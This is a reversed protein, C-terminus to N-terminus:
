QEVIDCTFKGVPIKEGLGWYYLKASYDVVSVELEYESSAEVSFTYSVTTPTSDVDLALAPGNLDRTDLLLDGVRLSWQKLGHRFLVNPNNTINL